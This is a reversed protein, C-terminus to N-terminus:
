WQKQQASAKKNCTTENTWTKEKNSHQFRKKPVNDLDERIIALHLGYSCYGYIPSCPNDFVTMIM